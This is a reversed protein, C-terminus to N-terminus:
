EALQSTPSIQAERGSVDRVTQISLSTSSFKSPKPITCVMLVSGGTGTSDGSIGAAEAVLPPKVKSGHMDEASQRPSRSHTLSKSSSPVGQVRPKSKQTQAGGTGIYQTVENSHSDPSTHAEEKVDIYAIQMESCSTCFKSANKSTPGAVESGGAGISGAGTGGKPGSSHQLLPKVKSVQVDAASQRPSRLQTCTPM